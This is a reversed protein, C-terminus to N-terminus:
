MEVESELLGVSLQGIHLCLSTRGRPFAAESGPSITLCHMSADLRRSRKTNASTMGSYQHKHKFGVNNVGFHRSQKAFYHGLFYCRTVINIM